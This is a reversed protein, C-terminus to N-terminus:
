AEPSEVQATEVEADAAEQDATAKAKKGKKPANLGLREATEDSIEDGEVGLLWAAETSGEPVVKTSDANVYTRETLTHMSGEEKPGLRVITVGGASGLVETRCSFAPAGCIPCAGAGELEDLM